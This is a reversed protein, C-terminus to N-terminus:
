ARITVDVGSCKIQSSTGLCAQLYFKYGETLNGTNWPTTYPSPKGFTSVRRETVQWGASDYWYTDGRVGLGDATGDYARLADGPTGSNDPDANWNVYGAYKGDAYLYIHASKDGDGYHNVKYTFDFDAASATSAGSSVSVGVTVATAALLTAIRNGIRAM